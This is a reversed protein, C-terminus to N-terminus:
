KEFHIWQKILNALKKMADGYLLILLSKALNVLTKFRGRYGSLYVIYNSELITTIPRQNSLGELDIRM